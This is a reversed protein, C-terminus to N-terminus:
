QRLDLEGLPRSSYHHRGDSLYANMINEAVHKWQWSRMAHEYANRRFVELKKNDILLDYARNALDELNTNEVDVIYGTEGDIVPESTGCVKSCIVPLGHAMAEVIVHPSPDFRSFLM